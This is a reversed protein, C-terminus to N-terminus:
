QFTWLIGETLIDQQDAFMKLYYRRYFINKCVVFNYMNIEPFINTLQLNYLV